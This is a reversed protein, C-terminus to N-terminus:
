QLRDDKRILSDRCRSQFKLDNVNLHGKILASELLHIGAVPSFSSDSFDIKGANNIKRILSDRCRSQFSKEKCWAM